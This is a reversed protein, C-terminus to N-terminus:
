RLRTKRKLRKELAPVTNQVGNRNTVGRHSITVINNAATSTM